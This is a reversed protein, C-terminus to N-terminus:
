SGNRRTSIKINMNPAGGDFYFKYIARKTKVFEITSFPDGNKKVTFLNFHERAEKHFLEVFDTDGHNTSRIALGDVENATIMNFTVHRIQRFIAAKANHDILNDTVGQYIVINANNTFGKYLYSLDYLQKDYHQSAIRYSYVKQLILNNIEQTVVRSVKSYAPSIWASVDLVLSFVKPFFRNCLHALYAGHSHGYVLIKDLNIQFGNDKVIECVAQLARMCDIAQIPGMEVFNAETENLNVTVQLSIEFPLNEAMLPNLDCQGDSPFVLKKMNIPLDQQLKQVQLANLSVHDIHGMFEMGLYTSQVVILNYQDAFLKRMKKYVNAEPTGGFGSILLMMGTNNDVKEPFSFFVKQERNIGAIVPFAPCTFEMQKAM